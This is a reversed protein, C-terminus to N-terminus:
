RHGRRRQTMVNAFIYEAVKPCAKQSAVSEFRFHIGGFIRSDAQDQALQTFSAYKRSVNPQGSTGVWTATFAIENADFILGLMRAASAGVCAMNGAHSPYPPTTLLPLWTPDGVTLPNLDDNARQVATIPRWGGYIFKSTHSTQVGDHIAVNLLAFARATDILSLRQDRVVDRAVHNWLAWHVTSSTVNAFLKALQTQEATRTASTAAGIQKAEEFDQAYRESTVPPPAEPLYQTSTLLAFPQTNAFQRFAPAAYAPPTPQYMGPLEPLVYPEATTNWGDNARWALIAAAVAKGIQLSGRVQGAPTRAVSAQLATDFTAESTPFQAALVDRAAQAAALEASAGFPARVSLRYPEYTREISNIADFMAIHLMAYHRPPSLGGAPVVRELIENWQIIVNPDDGGRGHAHSYGGVCTLVGVFVARWGKRMQGEGWPELGSLQLEV